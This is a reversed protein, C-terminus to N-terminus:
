VWRLGARGERCWVGEGELECHDELVLDRLILWYKDGLQLSVEPDVALSLGGMSIDSVASWEGELAVAPANVRPYERRQELEEEEKSRRGAPIFERGPMPDGRNQMMGGIRREM